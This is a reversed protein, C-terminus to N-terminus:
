HGIVRLEFYVYVAIAVLPPGAVAAWWLPAQVAVELSGNARTALLVLLGAAHGVLLIVDRLLLRPHPEAARYFQIARLVTSGVGVALLTGYVTAIFTAVHEQTEVDM